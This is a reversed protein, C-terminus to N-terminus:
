IQKQKTKSEQKYKNKTQKATQNSKYFFYHCLYIHSSIIGFAFAQKKLYFHRALQINEGAMSRQITILKMRYRKDAFQQELSLQIAVCIHSSFMQWQFSSLM